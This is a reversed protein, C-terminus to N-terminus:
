KRPADKFQEFESGYAELFKNLMARMVNDGIRAAGVFVHPPSGILGAV